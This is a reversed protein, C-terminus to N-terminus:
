EQDSPGTAMRARKAGTASDETASPLLDSKRKRISSKEKANEEEKKKDAAVVDELKKRHSPPRGDLTASIADRLIAARADAADLEVERRKYSEELLKQATTILRRQGEAMARAASRETELVKASADASAELAKIKAELSRIISLCFPLCANYMQRQLNNAFDM